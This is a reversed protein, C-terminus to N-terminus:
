ATKLIKKLSSDRNSLLERPPSVPKAILMETLRIDRAVCNGKGIGSAGTLRGAENLHFLIFGGGGLDRRISTDNSGRLGTVQLSFGYQDSWFWPVATYVEQRGMM